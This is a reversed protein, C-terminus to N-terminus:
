RIDRQEDQSVMERGGDDGRRRLEGGQEKDHDDVVQTKAGLSVTTAIPGDLHQKSTETPMIERRGRM